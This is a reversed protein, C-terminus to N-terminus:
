PLRELDHITFFEPGLRETSIACDDVYLRLHDPEVDSGYLVPSWQILPDIGRTDINRLDWLLKGDQWIHLIGDAVGDKYYWELHFWQNPQLPAPARVNPAIDWEQNWHTLTLVPGEPKNKIENYWTPDVAGTATDRKKFQFINLWDNVQPLEPFMMWCSFYGETLYEDWRFIRAGTTEQGINWVEMKLAYQGSHAAETSVGVQAEGSNFVASGEQGTHWDSFDGTEHSTSWIVSLPFQPSVVAPILVFGVLSLLVTIRKQM